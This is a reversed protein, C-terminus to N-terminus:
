KGPHFIASHFEESLYEKAQLLMDESGEIDLYVGNADYRESIVEINWKNLERRIASQESFECKIQAPRKIEYPVCSNETLIDLVQRAARSYARQLGGTGLKIGGFYRVVCVLCNILNDHQIQKLVPMGATGSPEKDDSFAERPQNEGALRWAWVIHNAKPHQQWLGTIVARIQDEDNVPIAIGAFRSNKESLESIETAVPTIPGSM